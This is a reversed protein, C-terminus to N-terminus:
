YMLWRGGESASFALVLPQIVIVVFTSSIGTILGM